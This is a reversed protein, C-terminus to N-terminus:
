IDMNTGKWRWGSGHQQVSFGTEVLQLILTIDKMDEVADLIIDLNQTASYHIQLKTLVSM